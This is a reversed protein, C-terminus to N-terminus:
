RSVAPGDTWGLAALRADCDATAEDAVDLAGCFEWAAPLYLLHTQANSGELGKVLDLAVDPDGLRAEFRAWELREVALPAVLEWYLFGPRANAPLARFADWAALTDGSALVAHAEVAEAMRITNARADAGSPSAAIERLREAARTAEAIRGQRASWFGLAWLSTRYSLDDLNPGALRRLEEAARDGLDVLNPHAYAVLPFWESWRELQSVRPARWPVSGKTWSGAQRPLQVGAAGITTADMLAQFPEFGDASAELMRRAADYDGRALLSASLGVVANWFRDGAGSESVTDHVLIERYLAEACPLQRGGMGLQAAAMLVQWPVQGVERSWDSDPGETVCRYMIDIQDRLVQDPDSRRFRDRLDSARVLDEERILDELRHFLVYGALSDLAQAQEFPRVGNPASMRPILHRYTEGLQAWAVTFTPDQAVAAELNQVAHEADHAAFGRIGEAFRRSREEMPLQIVQEVMEAAAEPEHIWSAAQAGRIGAVAFTADTDFSAEFHEFAERFNARRLAAEGLLFLAVADPPRNGFDAEVDPIETQILQPLLGNVARLGARWADALPAVASASAVAEGGSLDHLDLFVRASDGVGVVRGWVFYSCQQSRALDAMASLELSRANGRTEPDLLPWGDIWQLPEVGDLAHGILTAVDEGLSSTGEATVTSALPFVLVRAPRDDVEPGGFPMAWVLAAVLALAALGIFLRSRSRPVPAAAVTGGGPRRRRAVSALSGTRGLVKVPDIGSDPTVSFRPIVIGALAKADVARELRDAVVAASPPRQDPEKELLQAVLESVASPVSGNLEAISPPDFGVVNAMTHVPTKGLFPSRGGFVEYMLVGFSFLDSRADVPKAECQEPSMSRLTGVAMGGVTLTHDANQADTSKAVGFDLIKANGDGDLIVNEAKLDRHVLGKGHAAELGDAVQLLVQLAGPGSLSGDELHRALTEGEVFEMVISDGSADEVIDYVQVIAPHSLAAAARAERRLREREATGLDAGSRIRKIAVPRRLRDDHALFVEGM